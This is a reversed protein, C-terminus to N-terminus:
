AFLSPPPVCTYGEEGIMQTVGLRAAEAEDDVEELENREWDALEEVDDYFGKIAIKNSVPDHLSAVVRTLGVIPNLLSGGYVGSHLDANAGKIDIQVGFLGRTSLVLSGRDKRPQGGDASLVFDSGAFLEGHKKLVHGFGPSGIEEEGEVCVIINFPLSPLGGDLVDHLAALSSLASYLTGKCDQSGRGTLVDGYGELFIKKLEFPASITWEGDVPQVDYHGYLVISPKDKRATPTSATSGIVVPHRYGSEYWTADEMGLRLYLWDSLWEACKQTEEDYDASAAVSAIAVFQRMDEEQQARAEPTSLFRAAGKMVREYNIAHAHRVVVAMLATVLVFLMHNRPTNMMKKTASISTIRSRAM